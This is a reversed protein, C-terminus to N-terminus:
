TKNDTKGDRGMEILKMLVAAKNEMDGSGQVYIVKLLYKNFLKNSSYIIYHSVLGRAMLKPFHGLELLM